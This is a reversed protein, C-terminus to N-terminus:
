TFSCKPMTRSGSAPTDRLEDAVQVDVGAGAARAAGADETRRRGRRDDALRERRELVEADDARRRRRLRATPPVSLVDNLLAPSGPMPKLWSGISYLVCM